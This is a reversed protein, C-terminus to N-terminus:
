VTRRSAEGCAQGRRRLVAHLMAGNGGRFVLRQAVECGEAQDLVAALEDEQWLVPRWDMFADMYGDCRICRALGCLMLRGGPRLASFLAAVMRGAAARGMAGGMVGGAFGGMLDLLGPVLILDFSGHRLPRAILRAPRERLTELTALGGHDRRAVALSAENPDIALIRTAQDALAARELARLHGGGLVLIAPKAERRVTEDIAHALIQQQERLAVASERGQLFLRVALGTPTARALEAQASPHDLVLDLLGAMSEEGPPRHWAAHTLPDQMLLAAIPHARATERWGPQTAFARHRHTLTLLEPLAALASGTEEWDALILDLGRRLQANTLPRAAMRASQLPSATLLAQAEIMVM